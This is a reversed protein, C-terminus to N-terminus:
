KEKSIAFKFDERTIYYYFYCMFRVFYNRKIEELREVTTEKDKLHFLFDM